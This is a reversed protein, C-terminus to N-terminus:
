LTKNIRERIESLTTQNFFKGDEYITQLLGQNEEEFTCEQVVYYEGSKYELNLPHM